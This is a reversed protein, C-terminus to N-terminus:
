AVAALDRVAARVYALIETDSNVLPLGISTLDASMRAATVDPDGALVAMLHLKKHWHPLRQNTSSASALDALRGERGTLYVLVLRCDSAQAPDDCIEKARLLLPSACRYLTSEALELPKSELTELLTELATANGGVLLKQVGAFCSAVYVSVVAKDGFESFKAQASRILQLHEQRDEASVTDDLMFVLHAPGTEVTPPTTPAMTPKATGQALLPAIQNTFSSSGWADLIALNEAAPSSVIGGQYIFCRGEQCFEYDARLTGAFYAKNVVNEDTRAPGAAVVVRVGDRHLARAEFPVSRALYRANNQDRSYRALWHMSMAPNSATLIVLVQENSDKKPSKALALRASRLAEGLASVQESACCTYNDLISAIGLLREQSGRSALSLVNEERVLDDFFMLGFQSGQAASISRALQFLMRAVDARFKGADMSGSSDVIVMLDRPGGGLVQSPPLDLLLENVLDQASKTSTAPTTKKGDEEEKDQDDDDEGKFLVYDPYHLSPPTRKAECLMSRLAGGALLDELALAGPGHGLFKVFTETPESAIPVKQEYCKDKFAACVTRTLATETFYDSDPDAGDRSPVGIFALTAETDSKLIWASAPVQKTVYAAHDLRREELFAYDSELRLNQRPKGDGIYLVFPRNGPTARVDLDEAIKEFAFALPSCCAFTLDQQERLGAIAQRIEDVDRTELPLIEVLEQGLAVLRTQATAEAQQVMVLAEEAIDLMTSYFVRPDISSSADLLVVLDRAEDGCTEVSSATSSAASSVASSPAEVDRTIRGAASRVVDTEQTRRFRRQKTNTQDLDESTTEEDSSSYDGSEEAEDDTYVEGGSYDGDGDEDDGEEREADQIQCLRDLVVEALSTPQKWDPLDVNTSHTTDPLSPIITFLEHPSSVIPFAEKATTFCDQGVCYSEVNGLVWEQDAPLGEKTSQGVFMLDIGFQKVEDAIRPVVSMRYADVSQDPTLWDKGAYEEFAENPYVRGDSIIIVLEEADPTEADENDTADDDTHADILITRAAELAEALPSCCGQGLTEDELLSQQVENAWDQMAYSSLPIREVVDRGFTVLSMRSAANRLLACGLKQVFRLGDTYMWKRSLSNSTDMVVVTNRITGGPECSPMIVDNCMTALAHSSLPAPTAFDQASTDDDVDWNQVGSAAQAPILALATVGLTALLAHARM